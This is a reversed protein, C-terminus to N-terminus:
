PAGRQVRSGLVTIGRRGDAMPATALGLDQFRQQMEESVVRGEPAQPIFWLAAAEEKTLMARIETATKAQTM